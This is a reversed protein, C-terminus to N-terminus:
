EALQPQAPLPGLSSSPLQVWTQPDKAKPSHNETSGTGDAWM